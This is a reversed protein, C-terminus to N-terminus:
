VAKAHRGELSAPQRADFCRAVTRLFLRAEEPVTICGPSVACLGDRALPAAADLAGDLAEPAAGMEACVARVDVSMECMLREIARARLRDDAMLSIGREAPLRGAKVAEGWAKRDKLNQVYGERFQSIATAGFAILTEHPDDTYGQFNRRLRGEAAARALPDDERAFHDLGIPRYGAALLAASAAEAQAFRAELGPLAAEDIARQHKAFWPVHAYGFLSVRAAGMSAAFRAADAADETTQYPLGYMLDMNLASIGAGRLDRVLAEIMEPPQIRNVAAQVKPALTQVGLSARTVGAAAMAAVQGDQMTRPDLEIAIEAGPRIGFAERLAAIVRQLDEAILSNPTGGGFHLHGIGGHNGTARAKLRIEGILLEVYDAVRAYGNPVSTACGCYWCLKECFPIHVYASIAEDPPVGRLWDAAEGVGVVPSFDAATPYSTYRPVPQLAYPIWADKM